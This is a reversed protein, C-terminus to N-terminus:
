PRFFALPRVLGSYISELASVAKAATRPSSGIMTRADHLREPDDVLERLAVTWATPTEAPLIAGPLGSKGTNARLVEPYAGRDSVFAPLGMALAEEIVLGYSEAARSPFAALDSGAALRALDSSDYRGHIELDLAGAAHRLQDDLGAEVEEGALILRASRAPLAAMAQVLDLTGKVSARNGFCLVTLKSDGTRIRPVREFDTCLGHPVVLWSAPNLELEIGLSDRLSESPCIVADAAQVDARLETWRTQLDSELNPPSDPGLLPRVCSACSSTPASLPCDLGDVPTRFMRPCSPFHDHLTVVVPTTCALRRVLDWQQTPWQHVHAIDVPERTPSGGASLEGPMSDAAAHSDAAQTLDPLVEITVQHGRARLGAAQAQMVRETGGMFDAVPDRGFFALKM